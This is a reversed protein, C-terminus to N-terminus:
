PTTLNDAWGLPSIPFSHSGTYTMPRAFSGSADYQDAAQGSGGYGSLEIMEFGINRSPKNMWETITRTVWPQDSWIGVRWGTAPSAAIEAVTVRHPTAFLANYFGPATTQITKSGLLNGLRDWIGCTVNQTGAYLTYFRVGYLLGPSAVTFAGGVTWNNNLLTLGASGGLCDAYPTPEYTLDPPLILPDIALTHTRGNAPRETTAGLPNFYLGLDDMHHRCWGVNHRYYWWMNAPVVPLVTHGVPDPGLGITYCTYGGWIQSALDAQTFTYPGGHAADFKLDYAKAASGDLSFTQERTRTGDEGPKWFKVTANHAGLQASYYRAGVLQAGPVMGWFAQGVNVLKDVTYVSPSSQPAM